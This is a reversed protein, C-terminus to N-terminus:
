SSYLTLQKVFLMKIRVGEFVILGWGSAAYLDMSKSLRNLISLVLLIMTVSLGLFREGGGKRQYYDILRIAAKRIM